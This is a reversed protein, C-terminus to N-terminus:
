LKESHYKATLTQHIQRGYKRELRDKELDIEEDKRNMNLIDVIGDDIRKKAWQRLAINLVTDALLAVSERTPNNIIREQNPGFYYELVPHLVHIYVFGESFRARKRPDGAPDLKVDKFFVKSEEKDIVKVKCIAVRDEDSTTKTKALIGCLTGDCELFLFVINM